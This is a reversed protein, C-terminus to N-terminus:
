EAPVRSNPVWRRIQRLSIRAAEIPVQRSAATLDFMEGPFQVGVGCVYNPQALERDVGLYSGTSNQAFVIRNGEIPAANPNLNVDVPIAAEYLIREFTQRAFSQGLYGHPHQGVTRDWALYHCVKQHYPFIFGPSLTNEERCDYFGFSAAKEVRKLTQDPNEAKLLDNRFNHYCVCGYVHNCGIPMVTLDEGLGLHLNPKNAPASLAQRKEVDDLIVSYKQRAAEADSLRQLTETPVKYTITDNEEFISCTCSAPREHPHCNAIARAKAADLTPYGSSYQYIRIVTDVDLGPPFAELVGDVDELDELAVCVALAKQGKAESYPTVHNYAYLKALDSSFRSLLGSETVDAARAPVFTGFYCYIFPLIIPLVIVYRSRM